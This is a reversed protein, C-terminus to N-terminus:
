LQTLSHLMFLNHSHYDSGNSFCFYLHLSEYVTGRRDRIAAVALRNM